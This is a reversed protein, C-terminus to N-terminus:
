RTSWFVKSSSSSRVILNRWYLSAIEGVKCLSACTSILIRSRINSPSLAGYETLVDDLKRFQDQEGDVVFNRLSCPHDANRNLMVCTEERRVLRAIYLWKKKVAYYEGAPPIAVAYERCAVVECKHSPPMNPKGDQLSRGMMKKSNTEPM